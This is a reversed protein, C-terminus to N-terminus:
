IHLIASHLDIISSTRPSGSIKIPSDLANFKARKRAHSMEQNKKQFRNSYQKHRTGRMDVDKAKRMMPAHMIADDLGKVNNDVLWYAVSELGHHIKLLSKEGDLKVLYNVDDYADLEQLQLVEARTL